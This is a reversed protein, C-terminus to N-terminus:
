DTGRGLAGLNSETREAETASWSSQGAVPGPFQSRKLGNAESLTEAVWLNARRKPVARFGVLRALMWRM